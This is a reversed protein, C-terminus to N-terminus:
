YIKFNSDFIYPANSISDYFYHNDCYVETFCCSNAVRLVGTFSQNIKNLYNFKTSSNCIPCKTLFPVRGEQYYNVFSQPMGTYCSAASKNNTDVCYHSWGYQKNFCIFHNDHRNEWDALTLRSFTHQNNGIIKNKIALNTEDLIKKRTLQEEEFTIKQPAPVSQPRLETQNRVFDNVPNYHNVPPPSYQTKLWSTIQRDIDAPTHGQSNVLENRFIQQRTRM